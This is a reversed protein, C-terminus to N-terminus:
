SLEVLIALLSLDFPKFGKEMDEVEMPVLNIVIANILVKHDESELESLNKFEKFGVIVLLLYPFLKPDNLM